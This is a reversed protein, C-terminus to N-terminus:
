DAAPSPGRRVLRYVDQNAESRGSWFGDIAWRERSRRAMWEPTLFSTGWQPHRVGWDGREGFEPAYWFDRRYLAARIEALQSASRERTQAYHAISRQGHATLLLLGGPRVVRALEDLWQGAAREGFHSWISIAFALDFHADAYRLPPQTPSQLFRAEPLHARAWDIAPGNPDCGHWEVSRYAAALVRVVRGSSCGFDLARELAGLDRGHERALQEVLDAYGLDGGAARWGSRDMAHVEAPPMAAHLGTRELVAPLRAHVAAHLLLRRREHEPQAALWGRDGHPVAAGAAVVDADRLAGFLRDTVVRTGETEPGVSRAFRGATRLHGPEVEGPGPAAPERERARLADRLAAELQDAAREWTRPAVFAIGEAARAARLGPDDLLRELADALAVPDAPALEVPPRDDGVADLARGEVEVVPLGCALMELPILSANTLSLSFGVAAEAYLSSLADPSAIGLHEYAFPASTPLEDGFLVFRLGPRRRDLEALALIGLPVARRSTAARAYFVVTDSRRPVPRPRYVAHDVALDFHRAPRGAARAVLDALWRSAAVAVLDHEYTEQAWLRQASTAFFEPEHDQVLYARARCHDLRLVPHVTEWGTAIVVDAGHWDAFGKFLPGSPPRFFERVKARAVAPWESVQQGEPDHLWTSVTHGREELRTLLNYITAHGGSGRRFAPIVLALHLRDRDAMGPVPDLLAVPGERAVQLVADYPSPGAAAVPRGRAVEPAPEPPRRALRRAATGELSLAREVPAPLRQARSGLAAFVRRGTRHVASRAAWAALERAPPDDHARLWRLDGLVEDRLGRLRLPEVHGTTSALGRYEDFHRRAFAIPGYDHAHLVRAAPVYRIPWTTAHAFAQDESYPVDAFRTQAWCARRYCANVNSLWRGGPGPGAFFRELERALMPSTDPRPLHPGYAAGLTPDAAFASRYAELWGPLPTADQTLFCILEGSTQEAGLNRTRGHGFASREIELLRVRGGYSRAIAQSGDSSGSDIVLVEGPAQDLLADLLEGLRRAGDLVPIVVATKM